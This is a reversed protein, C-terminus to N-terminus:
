HPQRAFLRRLGRGALYAALALAATILMGAVAADDGLPTLGAQDRWATQAPISWFMNIAVLCAMLAAPVSWHWRMVGCVLAAIIVWM